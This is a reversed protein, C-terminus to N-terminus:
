EAAKEEAPAEAAAPESASEAADPESAAAAAAPEPASEAAPEAAPSAEPQAPAPAAPVAPKAPAAPREPAQSQPKNAARKDRIAKLKALRKLEEDIRVTLFKIISDNVRMRREIEKPLDQNGDVSYQVLTYIGDSYKQVKYALRKKGWRDTKDITGGGSTIAEEVLAVAQDVEEEPLDPKVIFILEYIRM